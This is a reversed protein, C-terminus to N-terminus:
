CGTQWTRDRHASQLSRKQAVDGFAFAGLFGQAFAFFAEPQGKVGARVGHIDIPQGVAQVHVDILAKGASVPKVRSSAIPLVEASILM